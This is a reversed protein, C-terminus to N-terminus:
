ELPGKNLEMIHKLVWAEVFEPATSIPKAAEAAVNRTKCACRDQAVARRESIMELIKEDLATLVNAYHRSSTKM